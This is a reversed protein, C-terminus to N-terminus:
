LGFLIDSVREYIRNASPGQNPWNLIDFHDYRRYTGLFNWSGRVAVGDFDRVPHGAPARMSVTNVVGDNAFWRSDIRVRGPAEQTYGGMGRQFLSPVIWEGAYTKYYSFMDERPYHYSRDQFPAIRRDTDNCCAAGAETAQTGVSFYYVRPSTRAWANFHRAGDPALEWNALDALLWDRLPANLAPLIDLVADRLTTGDHPTSITTVSRIWGLKGGRYLEGDGAQADGHELLEVLARITTGGQSHGIMHLPHAADWAPYLAPPYGEPNDRPDAAWCKVAKPSRDAAAHRAGDDVCGGKLQAYLEAARARNSGIAGVVATFVTRPGKHRRLHEAINGKGGWYLFGSRTFRDPGFGLFGHVLVIPDDNAARVPGAWQTLLLALACCLIRIAHPM